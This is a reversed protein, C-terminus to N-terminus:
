AEEYTITVRIIGPKRNGLASKRLYLNTLAQGEGSRTNKYLVAGKTQREMTMEADALVATEPHVIHRINNQDKKASEAM